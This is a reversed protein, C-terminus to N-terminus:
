SGLDAPGAVDAADVQHAFIHLPRILAPLQKEAARVVVGILEEVLGSIPDTRKYAVVDGTKVEAPKEAPKDPPKPGEPPNSPQTM